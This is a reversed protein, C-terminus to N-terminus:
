RSRRVRRLRSREDRCESGRAHLWRRFYGDACRCDETQPLLEYSWTSRKRAPRIGLRCAGNEAGGTLAWREDLAPSFLKPGLVAPVIRRLAIALPIRGLRRCIAAIAALRERHRRSTRNWGRMRAYLMQVASHGLVIKIGRIALSPVDLPPVRYVNEGEIRVSRQRRTALVSANSVDYSDNEAGKGGSSSTNAITSFESCKKGEESPKSRGIRFGTAGLRLYTCGAVM